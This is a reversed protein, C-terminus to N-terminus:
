PCFADYLRLCYQVTGCCPTTSGDPCTVTYCSKIHSSTLAVHSRKAGFAEPVAMVSLALVLMILALRALKM